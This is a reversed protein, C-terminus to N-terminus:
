RLVAYPNIPEGKRWWQREPTLRFIAFHLHPADASANGTSGVYGIVQGRTVADGEHVGSAYGDLHAYYFCFTESADFQYITLGGAESTFLKVVRGDTAALVATRRPAMIDIAEHSRESGRADSFTDSLQGPEVGAVPVDITRNRLTTVAAAPDATGTTGTMTDPNPAGADATTESSGEGPPGAPRQVPAEITDHVPRNAIAPQDRDTDQLRWHLGSDVLAGAAFSLGVVGLLRRARHMRGGGGIM